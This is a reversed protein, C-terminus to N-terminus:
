REPEHTEDAGGAVGPWADGALMQMAAHAALLGFIGTVTPLSGLTRRRRGRDLVPTESDEVPSMAEAPLYDIPETSYVCLVDTSAGRRRLFRRIRRALPCGTSATLPGVRICSTDTRLAAGMSSVVPIGRRGLENLLAVKPNFADIADVVMDPEGALVADFTDEHAFARMAEVRCAPNIDAVRGWAVEVKARGVTSHLAYLQRSINSPAVEDFDVLRLYGVGARALAETAYSGVAGLGIVAVRSAALREVGCPGILRAIRSFQGHDKESADSM